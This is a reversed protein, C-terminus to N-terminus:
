AAEAGVSPLTLVFAPGNPTDTRHVLDGGVAVALRRALALDLRFGSRTRPGFPQFVTAAERVPVDAAASAVTVDVVDWRRWVTIRVAGSDRELAHAVLVAVIEEVAARDALADASADGDVTVVHGPTSREVVLARVTDLIPVAVPRLSRRGRDIEAIDVLRDMVHRLQGLAEDVTRTLDGRQEPALRDGRALVTTVAVGLTAVPGRLDHAARAVFTAEAEDLALAVETADHREFALGLLVGVEGLVGADGATPEREPAIIELVGRVTSRALIPVAIRTVGHTAWRIRRDDVSRGLLESRDLDIVTHADAGREVLQGHELAHAVADRAGLRSRLAVLTGDIAADLDEAADVIRIADRLLALLEGTDAARSTHAAASTPGM